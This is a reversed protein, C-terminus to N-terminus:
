SPVERQGAVRDLHRDFQARARAPVDSTWYYEGSWGSGDPASVWRWDVVVHHVVPMDGRWWALAYTEVSEGAGDIVDIEVTGLDRM